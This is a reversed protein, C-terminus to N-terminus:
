EINQVQERMQEICVKMDVSAATTNADNSKSGITNAERNFEQMLFDMRRGVAGERKLVNNFEKIHADIRDLEEDIDLRQAAYVLEQELRASDHEVALQELKMLLRERQRAVVAPRHNRLLQLTASLYSARDALMKEVQEGERERTSLFDDLATDFGVCASAVAADSAAGQFEVVGPWQMLSLPDVVSDSELLGNVYDATHALQRLLPENLELSDTEDALPTFKLTVDVKGRHVSSNIRERLVSEVGRLTEPLRFSVELYRHNVSRLEWVFEGDDTVLRSHGYATMSRLMVHHEIKIPTPESVLVSGRISKVAVVLM